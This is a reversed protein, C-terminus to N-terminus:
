SRPFVQALKQHPTLFHIGMHMRQHNYYDLYDLIWQNIEQINNTRHKLCEEQITRNFRELHANDNPRRVRTHRHATHCNETFYTSFEPGNDSQVTHFQFPAAGKARELFDLSSWTNAKEYARAHAWRSHVDLITYIYIRTKDHYFVDPILHITDIEVLEGPQDALPRPSSQHYRKWKSRKKLWGASDLVRQVTSVSVTISQQKLAERVVAACRKHRLREQLIAERM